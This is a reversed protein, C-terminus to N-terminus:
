SAKTWLRQCPPIECHTPGKARFNLRRKGWGVSVHKSAKLDDATLTIDTVPEFNRTMLILTDAHTVIALLEEDPAWAAATIGADVSGVIEIIEEDHQPDERVLVLDGGAFVVCSTATDSFYQLCIIEDIPLNPSQCQADWSAISKFEPISNVTNRVIRKLNIKPSAETPGLTCIISDEAADWAIASPPLAESIQFEQLSINKLNRM